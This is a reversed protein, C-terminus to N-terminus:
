QGLWLLGVVSEHNAGGEGFAANAVFKEPALVYTGLFAYGKEFGYGATDRVSAAVDVLLFAPNCWLAALTTLLYLAERGAALAYHIFPRTHRRLEPPVWAEVDFEGEGKGSIVEAALQCPLRALKAPDVKTCRGVATHGRLLREWSLAVGTALPTVLGLGTVVVRRRQM